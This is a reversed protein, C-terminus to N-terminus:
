VERVEKTKVCGVADAIVARDRCDQQDSRGIQLSVAVREPCSPPTLATATVGSPLRATEAEYSRVSLTQSRSVPCSVRVIVPWSNLTNATASVIEYAEEGEGYQPYLGQPTYLLSGVDLPQGTLWGQFGPAALLSNLQMALEFRDKEPYFSELDLVGIWGPNLGIPVICAAAVGTVIIIAVGYNPVVSYTAILLWIFNDRRNPARTKM